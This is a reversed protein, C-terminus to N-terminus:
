PKMSTFIIRHNNETNKSKKAFLKFDQEFSYELTMVAQKGSMQFLCPPRM